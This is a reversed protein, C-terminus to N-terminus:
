HQQEVLEERAKEEIEEAQHEEIEEPSPTPKEDGAEEQSVSRRTEVTEDPEETPKGGGADHPTQIPVEEEMREAEEHAMQEVSEDPGKIEIEPEQPTSEEAPSAGRHTEVAGREPKATDAETPKEAQRGTPVAEYVKEMEELAEEKEEETEVGRKKLRRRIFYIMIILLLTIGGVWYIITWAFPAETIRFHVDVSDSRLKSGEEDTKVAYLTVKHSIDKDLTQPAKIAFAGEESDSIVSSALVLSHWVAHVQSGFESDGSITPQDDDIEIEVTDGNQAYVNGIWIGNLAIDGTIAKGGISRPRPTSVDAENDVSIRIPASALPDRNAFRAVAVLDYLKNNELVSQNNVLFFKGGNPEDEFTAAKATGINLVPLQLAKLKEASQSLDPATAGILETKLEAVADALDDYNFEPYSELFTQMEAIAQNLEDLYNENNRDAEIAGILNKLERYEAPYASVVVSQSAAPAIGQVIDLTKLTWGPHPDTITVREKRVAIQCDGAALPSTYFQNLEDGDGCTDRDSDWKLPDTGIYCETRDSLGDRDSDATNDPYEQKCPMRDGPLEINVAEEIVPKEEIAQEAVTQEPAAGHVTEEVTTTTPPLVKTKNSCGSTNLECGSCSLTGQDFGQSKCSEGRLDSGDCTEDGEARNNGCVASPTRVHVTVTRSQNLDPHSVTITATGPAVGIVCSGGQPDTTKDGTICNAMSAINPDDSVYNVPPPSTMNESGGDSFRGTTNIHMLEGVNITADEPSVSISTLFHPPIEICAGTDFADCSANCSLAGGPHGLSQCSADGTDNGDCLETGNKVGDGCFGGPLTVLQCTSDCIDCTPAGYDCSETVTNGDDCSEGAEQIGNGCVGQPAGCQNYNYTCNNNCSLVGSGYGESVCTAGKLDNGDCQETGGAIGNNDCQAPPEITKTQCQSTDFTCSDTCSLAGEWNSGLLSTCSEGGLQPGDCFEEGERIENNNCASAGVNITFSAGSRNETSQQENAIAAINFNLTTSGNGIFSVKIRAFITNSTVSKGGDSPLSSGALLQISDVGSSDLCADFLCSSCNADQESCDFGVAGNPAQVDTVNIVSNDYTIMTQAGLFEEGSGDIKLLLITTEGVSGSASSCNGGAECIYFAPSGAKAQNQGAVLGMIGILLLLAPLVLWQKLKATQM